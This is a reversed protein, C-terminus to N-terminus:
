SPILNQYLILTAPFMKFSGAEGGGELKGTRPIVKDKSAGKRGKPKGERDRGVQLSLNLLEGGDEEKGPSAASEQGKVEVGYKQSPRVM